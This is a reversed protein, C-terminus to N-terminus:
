PHCLHRHDYCGILLATVNKGLCLLNLQLSNQVKAIISVSFAGPLWGPFLSKLIKKTAEQTQKPHKHKSNLKRTLDIIADYRCWSLTLATLRACPTTM